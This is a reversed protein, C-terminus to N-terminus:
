TAYRLLQLECCICTQQFCALVAAASTPVVSAPAAVMLAAHTSSDKGSSFPQEECRLQCPGLNCLHMYAASALPTPTFTMARVGM